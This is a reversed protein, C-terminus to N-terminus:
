FTSHVRVNTPIIGRADTKEQKSPWKEQRKGYQIISFHQFSLNLAGLYYYAVYFIDIFHEPGTLVMHIRENGGVIFIFYIGVNLWYRRFKERVNPNDDVIVKLLAWLLQFAGLFLMFLNIAVTFDMLNKM